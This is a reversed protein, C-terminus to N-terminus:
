GRSTSGTSTGPANRQKGRVRANPDMFFSSYRPLKKERREETKRPRRRRPRSRRCIVVTKQANKAPSEAEGGEEEEEGEDGGMAFNDLLIAHPLPELIIYNGVVVLVIFYVCAGTSVERMGDYM